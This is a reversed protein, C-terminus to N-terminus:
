LFHFEKRELPGNYSWDLQLNQGGQFECKDRDLLAGKKLQPIAMQTTSEKAFLIMLSNVIQNSILYM